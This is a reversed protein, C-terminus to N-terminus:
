DVRLGPTYAKQGDIVWEISYQGPLVFTSYGQEMTLMRQTRETFGEYWSTFGDIKLNYLYYQLRKEDIGGPFNDNDYSVFNAFVQPNLLNRAEKNNASPLMKLITLVKNVEAQSRFDRYVTYSVESDCNCSPVAIERLPIVKNERDKLDVISFTNNFTVIYKGAKLRLPKNLNACNKFTTQMFINPQRNSDGVTTGWIAEDTLVEGSNTITIRMACFTSLELTSAKHSPTNGVVTISTQPIVPPRITIPSTPDTNSRSALGDAGSGVIVGGLAIQDKPGFEVVAKGGVRKVAADVYSKDVTKIVLGDGLQQESQKLRKALTADGSNNALAMMPMMMTLLVLTEM